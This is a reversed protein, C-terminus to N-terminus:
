FAEFEDDAHNTRAKADRLDPLARNTAVPRPRASAPPKRLPATRAHDEDGTKFYAVSSQLTEAQASLEESTAAMEQSTGASRQIEQDMQQIAKNIQGVNQNQERSSAAIEQVLEATKQIDPVLRALMSGAREAVEVSSSSLFGIEGAATQSREALKRVEAAVVAFGKGHEGARAAEIAANLALLNTQRAIEEIISIKQAIEKMAGVAETVAEGTEVADRAATQSIKATTEANDTNRQVTSSMLEMTSSTEEISAAQETSSQALGQSADSLTQSGQAVEIAALKIQAIVERLRGTCGGLTAAMQGVEDNQRIDIAVMMNGSAFEMFMQRLKQIPTVIIRAILWAFFAGLLLSVGSVSLAIQSNHRAAAGVTETTKVMDESAEKVLADLLPEIAHTAARMKETLEAIEKNKAVLALFDQQYKKATDLLIKRDAEPIGSDTIEKQLKEVKKNVSAVYKEEGRLLYDKEDKRIELYLAALGPVYRTKLLAEIGHAIDRIETAKTEGKEPSLAAYEKFASQYQGAKATLEKKLEEALSADAIAQLLRKVWGELQAVYKPDKRLQFDKEARRMQLLSVMTEETDLNRIAKELKHASERFGGQLGSNPDLGKETENQALKVFANLYEASKQKIEGDLRASEADQYAQATKLLGDTIRDM